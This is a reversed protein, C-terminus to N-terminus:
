PAATITVVLDVEDSKGCDVNGECSAALVNAKKTTYTVKKGILASADHPNNPCLDFDGELSVQEGGKDLVVYCARDGNQLEKLTAVPSAAPGQGASNAPPSKSGGCAIVCALIPILIRM